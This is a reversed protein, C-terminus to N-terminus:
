ETLEQAMRQKSYFSHKGLAVGIMDKALRAAWFALEILSVLSLGTFLGITGGQFCLIIFTKTLPSSGEGLLSIQDMFTFRAKKEMVIAKPSALQFM